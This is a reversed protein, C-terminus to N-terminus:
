RQKVLDRDTEELHSIAGPIEFQLTDPLTDAYENRM